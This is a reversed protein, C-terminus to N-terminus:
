FALSLQGPPPADDPSAPPLRRPLLRVGLRALREEAARRTLHLARVTRRGGCPCRLVDTGWTRKHLQARDLRPRRTPAPAFGKFPLQPPAPPAPPATTVVPRLAANPAYAGHFSTLHLKPPPLLAVLRTVLAVATVTFSAGKKTAYEYRGDDLRKLRVSAVPGRAGYRVLRELGERDHGHVATDAHLSFGGEVAVRRARGRPAPEVLQLREQAARQQLQQYEDEPWAADLQRWDRKALTLARHLVRAVDEDSPPPLEVLEGEATWLAEPVLLHLHPTLQLHSGFWQWFCVAGGRLRGEVGLRKAERRQWRWVARVLRVELRKLLKPQKVVPFRAPFPLSLTWQRHAVKPLLAELHAGTELARRTTCSPCWGRSKCSFAVLRAEGCDGCAVEAFGYRVDGCQLFREVERRVRAPMSSAVQPWGRRFAEHLVSTEPTRRRDEGEGGM